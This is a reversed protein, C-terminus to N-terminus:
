ENDFGGFSGSSNSPAVRPLLELALLKSLNSRCLEILLAMEGETVPTALPVKTKEKNNVLLFNCYYGKGPSNPDVRKIVLEKRIEGEGEAKGKNPDHMFKVESASKHEYFALLDGIETVSLQLSQSNDWDYSRNGFVQEPPTSTGAPAKNPAFTLLLKGQRALQYSKGTSSLTLTPSVFKFQVSSRSKFINWQSFVPLDPNVSAFSRILLKSPTFISRVRHFPLM